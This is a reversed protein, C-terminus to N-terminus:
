TTVQDLVGRTGNDRSRGHDSMPVLDILISGLSKTAHGPANAQSPFNLSAAHRSNNISLESLGAPRSGDPTPPYYYM